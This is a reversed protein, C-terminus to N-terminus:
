NSRHMCISLIRNPPRPAQHIKISTSSFMPKVRSAEMADVTTPHDITRYQM